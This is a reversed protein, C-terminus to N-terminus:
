ENTEEGIVDFDLIYQIQTKSKAINLLILKYLSVYTCYKGNVRFEYGEACCILLENSKFRKLTLKIGYKKCKKIAGDILKAKLM